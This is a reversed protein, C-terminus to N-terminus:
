NLTGQALLAELDGLRVRLHGNGKPSPLRTAALLGAAIWRKVTRSCVGAREAAKAISLRASPHAPYAPDPAGDISASAPPAVSSAFHPLKTRATM